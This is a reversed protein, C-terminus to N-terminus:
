VLCVYWRVMDCSLFREVERVLIERGVVGKRGEDREEKRSDALALASAGKGSLANSGWNPSSDSAM